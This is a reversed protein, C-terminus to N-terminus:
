GTTKGATQFTGGFFFGSLSPGGILVWNRTDGLLSRIRRDIDKNKVGNKTTKMRSGWRLM